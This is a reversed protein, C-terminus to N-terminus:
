KNGPCASNYLVMSDPNIAQWENSYSSFAPNPGNREELIRLRIQSCNISLMDIFDKKDFSAKVLLNVVHESPYTIKDSMIYLPIGSKTSGIHKWKKLLDGTSVSPINSAINQTNKSNDRKVMLVVNPMARIGAAQETKNTDGKKEQLEKVDQELKSISASENVVSAVPREELKVVQTSVPGKETRALPNDEPKEEADVIAETGQPKNIQITRLENFTEDVKATLEIKKGKEINGTDVIIESKNNIINGMGTERAGEETKKDKAVTKDMSVPILSTERASAQQLYVTKNQESPFSNVAETNQVQSPGSPENLARSSMQMNNSAPLGEDKETSNVKASETYAPISPHNFKEIMVPLAIVFVIIVIMALPVYLWLRKKRIEEATEFNNHTAQTRDRRYGAKIHEAYIKEHDPGPEEIKDTHVIEEVAKKDIAGRKIEPELEIDGSLTEKVRKESDDTHKQITIDEKGTESSNGLVERVIFTRESDTLECYETDTLTIHNTTTIRADPFPTVPAGTNLMAGPMSEKETGILSETDEGNREPTGEADRVASMLKLIKTNQEENVKLFKIGIVYKYWSHNRWIVEGSINVTWDADPHKLRFEMIDGCQCEITQAELSFGDTSLDRTIGIAFGGPTRLPKFEVILFINYRKLKRKDYIM